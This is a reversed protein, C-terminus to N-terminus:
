RRVFGLDSMFRGAERNNVTMRMNSIGKAMQEAYMRSTDVVAAVIYDGLAGVDLYGDATNSRAAEKAYKVSIDHPIIQSGSPLSVLEGRGGENMYTFGGSWYDTGHANQPISNGSSSSSGSVSFTFSEKIGSVIDKITSWLNSVVSKIGDIISNLLDKGIQLWDTDAFADQITSIIQPLAAILDPIAQLIGNIIMVLLEIGTQLITPLNKGITIVISSIIQPIAAVLRPLSNIIGKVIGVLLQLGSNILQPLNDLLGTVLTIIMDMAAPILAPLNRALGSVLASVISVGGTIISPLLATITNLLTTILNAGQTMLNPLASVIGSCFNNILQPGKEAAQTLLSNIQTGFNEQLLGMGAVLVAIGAAISLGKAFTIGFSSAFTKVKGLLSSLSEGIRGSMGKANTEFVGIARALAPFKMGVNGVLTSFGNSIPSIISKGLKGPFSKIGSLFSNVKSTIPEFLPAKALATFPQMIGSSLNKFDGVVSKFSKGLTTFTKPVGNISNKIGSFAKGVGGSVSSITEMGHGLIELGPGLGVAFIAGVASAKQIEPSLGSFQTKLEKVKEVVNSFTAGFKEGLDAAKDEVVGLEENLEALLPKVQSFFGGGAEGADLFNAGIRSLSAGINAIVANFSSEGMIKAAGGINKEVANLFMESSVAGDSALEKVADATVGAEDAIWQYIPVGRDALQNLEETYARQSTQVKNFISGMDSMSSGAIAAADATLTLYRTLEKGPKIGAAVASAATTAAEDLGYSTGKVSTLASNMIEEISEADHGLGKLKARAEDIGQLRNFGKVLTIGVLASTATIAPTTIYKTLKSGIKSVSKGISSIKSEFSTVARQAVSLAKQVDSADGTIKVKLTQEAM